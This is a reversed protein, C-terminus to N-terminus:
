LCSMVNFFCIPSQVPQNWRNLADAALLEARNGHIWHNGVIGAYNGRELCFTNSQEFLNGIPRLIIGRSLGGGCRCAM